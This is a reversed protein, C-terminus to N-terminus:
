GIKSRIWLDEKFGNSELDIEGFTQRSNILKLASRELLDAKFLNVELGFEGFPRGRIQM